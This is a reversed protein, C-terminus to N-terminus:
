WGERDESEICSDMLLSSLRMGIVGRTCCSALVVAISRVRNAISSDLSSPSSSSKSEKSPTPPSSSFSMISSTIYKLEPIRKHRTKSFIKSYTSAKKSACSEPKVPASFSAALPVCSWRNIKWCVMQFLLFLDKTRMVLQSIGASGKMYSYSLIQCGEPM